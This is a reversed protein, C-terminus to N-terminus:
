LSTWLASYKLGRLGLTSAMLADFEIRCPRTMQAGAFLTMCGDLQGAFRDECSIYAHLVAHTPICACSVKSHWTLDVHM